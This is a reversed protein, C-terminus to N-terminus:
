RWNISEIKWSHEVKTLTVLNNGWYFNKNKELNKDFYQILVKASYTNILTVSKIKIGDIPEQGGTWRYFNSFDCQVTEFDDLDTFNTKFDHYKVKRLEDLCHQYSLKEKIILSDLFGHKTLNYFYKTFDLTTMGTKSEVFVPQFESHRKQNIAELYWEFFDNVTNCIELSDVKITNQANLKFASFSILAIFILWIKFNM